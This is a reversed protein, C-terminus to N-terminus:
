AVHAVVDGAELPWSLLVWSPVAITSDFRAVVSVARTGSSVLYRCSWAWCVVRPRKHSAFLVALISCGVDTLLLAHSPEPAPAPLTLHGYMYESPVSCLHSQFRAFTMTLKILM